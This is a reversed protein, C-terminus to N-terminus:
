SLMSEIEPSIEDICKYGCGSDLWLCDTSDIKHSSYNPARVGGPSCPLRMDKINCRQETIQMARRFDGLKREFNSRGLRDITLDLSRNAAQYLWIDGQSWSQWESSSFYQKMGQSVFSKVIYVCTSNFAGDDFGGSGKAKVYVMDTTRLGLLMQMVVLSEDLRETIGIFDYDQIIRNATMRRLKDLKEPEMSAATYQVMVSQLREDLQLDRLYYDYLYPREHMYKLFNRDTPESKERSVQFHFFQSVMRRSPERLVTFLFSEQPKRKGYQMVVGSSHDVRARCAQTQNPHLRKAVNRAIRLVVGGITSSGTKMEKVFLYGRQAPSRQVLLHWWREEAVDCPLPRDKPWSDFARPVVGGLEPENNNSREGNEVNGDNKNDSSGRKEEFVKVVTPAQHTPDARRYSSLNQLCTSGHISLHQWGLFIGVQFVLFVFAVVVNGNGLAQRSSAM